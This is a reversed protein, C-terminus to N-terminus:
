VYIIQFFYMYDVCVHVCVCVCMYLCSCILDVILQDCEFMNYIINLTDRVM